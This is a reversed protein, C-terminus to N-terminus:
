RGCWPAAAATAESTVVPSGAGFVMNPVDGVWNLSVQGSGDVVRQYVDLEGSSGDATGGAHQGNNCLRGGDGPWVGPHGWVGGLPGTESVM